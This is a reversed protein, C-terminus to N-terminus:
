AVEEDEGVHSAPGSAIRYAVIDGVSHKHEWRWYKGLRPHKEDANRIRVEVYKDELGAPCPGGAHETWDDGM